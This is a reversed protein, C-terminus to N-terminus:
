SVFGKVIVFHSRERSELESDVYEGGGQDCYDMQVIRLEGKCAILAKELTGYTGVYDTFRYYDFTNLLVTYIEM